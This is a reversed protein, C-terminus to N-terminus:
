WHGGLLVQVATGVLRDAMEGMRWKDSNWGADIHVVLPRLGWEKSKLALYSSDVGGSLGIICDFEKGRGEARVRDVFQHLKHEGSQDPFWVKGILSQFERCHNCRGQSDFIIEPDSTDMVCYSCERYDTASM